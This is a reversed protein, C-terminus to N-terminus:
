RIASRPQCTLKLLSDFEKQIIVSDSRFPEPFWVISNEGSVLLPLIKRIPIPIRKIRMQESIKRRVGTIPDCWQDGSRRTRISFRDDSIKIDPTEGSTRSVEINYAGTSFHRTPVSEIVNIQDFHKMGPVIVTQEGHCSANFGRPLPCHRQRGTICTVLNDIHATTVRHDAHISTYIAAACRRVIVPDTKALIRCDLAVPISHTWGAEELVDFAMQSLITDEQALLSSLRVANRPAQPNIQTLIPIVKQRLANRPKSLDKNTPDDLWTLARARAYDTVEQRTVGLMPRIVQDERHHRVGLMGRPGTGSIVRFLITELQDSATHASAIAAAQTISRIDQLAKYRNTRWYSEISCKDARRWPPISYRVCPLGYRCAAQDVWAATENSTHSSNHDVHAVILQNQPDPALKSFIDLMVMSDRGGSVALILPDKYNWLRHKNVTDIVSQLLSNIKM